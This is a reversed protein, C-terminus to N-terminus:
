GVEALKRACKREGERSMETTSKPGREEKEERNDDKKGEEFNLPRFTGLVM